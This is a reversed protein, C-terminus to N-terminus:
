PRGEQLWTGLLGIRLRPSGGDDRALLGLATYAPELAPDPSQGAAVLRVNRRVEPSLAQWLHEVADPQRQVYVQVATQASVRQPLPPGPWEGPRLVRHTSAADLRGAMLAVQSGLQRLLFPHGGAARDLTDLDGDDFDLGLRAGITELLTCSEALTLPPLWGDGNVAAPGSPLGDWSVVLSVDDRRVALEQLRDLVAGPLAGDLFLVFRPSLAPLGQAALYDLGAELDQDPGCAALADDLEPLVALRSHTRRLNLLLDALLDRLVPQWDPGRFRLDAYSRLWRGPVRRRLWWLASTRGSRPLGWFYVDQDGEIAALWGDLLEARGFLALHDLLPKRLDFVDEQGQGERIARELALGAERQDVARQIESSGLPVLRAAQMARYAAPTPIHDLVIFGLDRSATGAEEALKTVANEDLPRHIYLWANLWGLARYHPYEPWLSLRDLLPVVQFGAQDFFVEAYRLIRNASRVAEVLVERDFNVASLRALATLAFRYGGQDDRTFLRRAQLSSLVDQVQALAPAVGLRQLESWLAEATFAAELGTAVSAILQALSGLESRPTSVLRWAPLRFILAWVQWPYLRLRLAVLFYFYLGLLAGLILAPLVVFAALGLLARGTTYASPLDLTTYYVGDDPTGALLRNRDWPDLALVTLPRDSTSGQRWSHGDDLSVWFAYKPRDSVTVAQVAIQPQGDLDTTLTIASPVAVQLPVTDTVATAYLVGPREPDALITEFRGRLSPRWTDGGDFSTNIGDLARVHLSQRALGLILQQWIDRGGVVIQLGHRAIGRGLPQWSVGQDDSVSLGRGLQVAFLTQEDHSLALDDVTALQGRLQWTEGADTSRYIGCGGRGLDLAAFLLAPNRRGQVLSIVRRGDEPLGARVWEWSAGHDVSRYIGTGGALVITQGEGLVVIDAVNRAAGIPLARSWRRWSQGRDGSAYMGGVFTGTLLTEREPGAFALSQVEFAPAPLRGDALGNIPEWGDGANRYVGAGYTAAYLIDIDARDDYVLSLIALAYGRLGDNYPQWTDGGDQSRYVGFDITGAYLNGANDLALAQVRRARADDDFGAIVQEWHRGGDSTRYVGDMTGAWLVGERMALSYVQRALAPGPPGMAQWTDSVPESGCINVSRTIDTSRYVGSGFTGAYLTGDDEDQALAYVPKESWPLGPAVDQAGWVNGGNTSIYVGGWTAQYVVDPDQLDILVADAYLDDHCPLINNLPGSVSEWNAGGDTSRLVGSGWRSLYITKGDSSVALARVRAKTPDLGYQDGPPSTPQWSHGGDGSRYLGDGWTGAYLLEPTPGLALAYIVREYPGGTPQWEAAWQGREVSLAPLTARAPASPEEVPVPTMPRLLAVIALLILVLAVAAPRWDDNPSV